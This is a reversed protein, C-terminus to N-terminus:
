ATFKKRDLTQQLRKLVRQVINTKTFKQGSKQSNRVNDRSMNMIEEIVYALIQCGIRQQNVNKQVLKLVKFQEAM